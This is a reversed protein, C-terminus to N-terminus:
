HQILTREKNIISWVAGNETCVYGHNMSFIRNCSYVTVNQVCVWSFKNVNCVCRPKIQQKVVVLLLKWVAKKNLHQITNHWRQITRCRKHGQIAINLAMLWSNQPMFTNRWWSGVFMGMYDGGLYHGEQKLILWNWNLVLWLASEAFCRIWKKRTSAYIKGSTVVTWEKM